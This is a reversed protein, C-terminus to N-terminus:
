VYVVDMYESGESVTGSNRVKDTTSGISAIEAKATASDSGTL